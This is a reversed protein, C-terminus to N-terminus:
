LPVGGHQSELPSSHRVHRRLTSLYRVIYERHVFPLHPSRLTFRCEEEAFLDCVVPRWRHVACLSKASFNREWLFACFLHTGGIGDTFLHKWAEPFPWPQPFRGLGGFFFCCQGCHVCYHTAPDPSLYSSLSEVRELTHYVTEFVLTRKILHNRLFTTTWRPSKGYFFGQSALELINMLWFSLPFFPRFVRRRLPTETLVSTCHSLINDM